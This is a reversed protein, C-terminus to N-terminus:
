SCIARVSALDTGSGFVGAIFSRLDMRKKHSARCGLLLELRLGKRLPPALQLVLDSDWFHVLYHVHWSTCNLLKWDIVVQEPCLFYVLYHVNM